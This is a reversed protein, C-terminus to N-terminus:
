KLNKIIDDYMGKRKAARVAPSSYKKFDSLTQYKKVEKRIKEDTWKEIGGLGGCKSSHLPKWVLSSDENKEKKYFENQYYCELDIAEMYPVYGNSLIKKIPKIDNQIIYMYVPSLKKDKSVLINMHQKDRREEDSTLGVYVALPNGKKDRFEYAYVMRKVKNGLPEWKKLKDLLGKASATKYASPDNRLFDIKYKFPEVIKVLDEFSLNRSRVRMHAIIEDKIGMNLSAQYVKGEKEIFDNLDTYNDAINRIEDATWRKRKPDILKRRIAEAYKKPEKKIFDDGYQNFLQILEEDSSPNYKKDTRDQLEDWLNRYNKRISEYAKFDNKKFDGMFNYKSAINRLQDETYKVNIENVLKNYQEETLCIKM